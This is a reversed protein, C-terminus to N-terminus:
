ETTWGNSRDTSFIRSSAGFAIMRDPPGCDTYESAAGYQERSIKSSPTGIRPM